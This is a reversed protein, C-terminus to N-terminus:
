NEKVIHIITINGFISSLILNCCLKMGCGFCNMMWLRGVMRCFLRNLQFPTTCLSHILWGYICFVHKLPCVYPIQYLFDESDQLHTYMFPMYVFWWLCLTWASLFILKISFYHEKITCNKISDWSNFMIYRYQIKFLLHICLWCLMFIM